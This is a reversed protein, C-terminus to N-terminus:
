GVAKETMIVNATVSVTCGDMRLPIRETFAELPDGKVLLYKVATAPKRMKLTPSKVPRMKDPNTRTTLLRPGQNGM